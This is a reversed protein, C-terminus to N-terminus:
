PNSAFSQANKWRWYCGWIIIFLNQYNWVCLAITLVAIWLAILSYVYNLIIEQGWKSGTFM